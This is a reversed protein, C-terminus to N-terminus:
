GEERELHGFLGGGKHRTRGLLLPGAVAVQFRLRARGTLGLGPRGRAEVIEVEPEPHGAARCAERIDLALAPGPGIGKRHRDVAYPTRSIWNRGPGLLPDNNAPVAFATVTLHGARGARLECFGAMAAQLVRLHRREEAWARRRDRVHPAVVVLRSDVPDFVYSLHPHRDDAPQGKEDHGTVFPPLRRPGSAAQFRALVARRLAAAVDVPSATAALGASIRWALLGAVDGLPAMIGLSLFRGDGLVLPGPVPERFAIELHWLREKAFRTGPSFLEARAGRGEFPERQVLVREVPIRVGAHRLAQGVAEIARAEEAAREAAGKAQSSRHSPEIRRRSAREPLALPTVSRWVRHGGTTAVGYHNLMARDTAPTVVVEVGAPGVVPLGSFSWFVDDARLTCGPPVEVLLRRIGRDVMAHGISPLALVRVREAPSVHPLGEVQRGVLAREIDAGREELGATLRTAAADRVAETLQAIRPLATAAFTAMEGPPRLDFLGRAPPSDYAVQMFSPKPPQRFVQVQKRGTGQFEFRGLTAQHRADLSDLSGTRPCPLCWAGESPGGTPHLVQGPHERLLAAAADEEILAGSAWAMDVGRGLQFLRQASECIEVARAEHEPQVGSWVYVLSVGPDFIRPRAPKATRIKAVRLPDGGQADLDNNPVWFRVQQGVWAVPAAITPPPLSELWRLADPTRSDVGETGSNGAVLAQFLRAPAPPWEPEGHYRGDMFRVTITLARTPSANM